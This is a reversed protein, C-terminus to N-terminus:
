IGMVSYRVLHTGHKASEKQRGNAGIRKVAQSDLLTECAEQLSCGGGLLGLFGLGCSEVLSFVLGLRFFLPEFQTLKAVNLFALLILCRQTAYRLNLNVLCVSRM